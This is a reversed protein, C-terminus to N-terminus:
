AEDDDLEQEQALKHAVERRVIYDLAHVRVAEQPQATLRQTIVFWLLTKEYLFTNTEVKSNLTTL